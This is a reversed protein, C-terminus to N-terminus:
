PNGYINRACPNSRAEMWGYFSAAPQMALQLPASSKFYSERGKESLFAPANGNKTLYEDVAHTCREIQVRMAAMNAAAPWASIYMASSPSFM